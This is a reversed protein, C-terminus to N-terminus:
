PQLATYLSRPSFLTTAQTLASLFEGVSLILREHFTPRFTIDVNEDHLEPYITEDPLTPKVAPTNAVARTPNSHQSFFTWIVESASLDRNVRGSFILSDDAPGGPWTHGGGEVAYLVVASGDQCPGYTEQRIRSTGSSNRHPLYLVQSPRSPCGDVQQWHSITAPVSLTRGGMVRVNGGHWLVYADKTGHFEIVPLPRPPTCRQALASPLTGDVPGIAALMESLECGLRQVFMAGNSMGTAYIRTPDVALTTELHRILAAIFGVDDHNRPALGTTGSGDNWHAHIGIPYVVLFNQQDALNNFQTIEAIEEASEFRGHFVLVLPWTARADSHYAPSVHLSYSRRMGDVEITRIQDTTPLEGRESAECWGAQVALVVATLFLSWWHIQGSQM